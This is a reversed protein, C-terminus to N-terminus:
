TVSGEDRAHAAGALERYRYAVQSSIEALEADTLYRVPASADLRQVVQALGSIMALDAPTSSRSVVVGRGEIILFPRNCYRSPWHGRRDSYPIPQFLEATRSDSFITQCPYLLGGALVAQSTRDTALAHVGDDDPLDWPTDRAVEMLAAYDAPHAQRPPIALRESVDTLMKSPKQM